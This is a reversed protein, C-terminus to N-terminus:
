LRASSLHAIKREMQEECVRSFQGAHDLLLKIKISFRGKCEHLRTIELLASLRIWSGHVHGEM